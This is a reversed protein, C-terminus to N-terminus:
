VLGGKGSFLNQQKLISNGNANNFLNKQKIVDKHWYDNTERKVRRSLEQKIFEQREEELMKQLMRENASLKRQEVKDRAREENDIERVLEGRRRIGAILDSVGM